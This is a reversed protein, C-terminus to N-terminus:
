GAEEDELGGVRCGKQGPLTPRALPLQRQGMGVNSDM